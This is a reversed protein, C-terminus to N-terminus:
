SNLNGAHAATPKTVNKCSQWTVSTAPARCVEQWTQLGASDARKQRVFPTTPSTAQQSAGDTAGAAASCGEWLGLPAWNGEGLSGWSSLGTDKDVCM